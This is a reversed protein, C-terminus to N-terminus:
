IGLVGKYVKQRKHIEGISLGYQEIIQYIAQGYLRHFEKIEPSAPSNKIDKSYEWFTLWWQVRREFEKKEMDTQCWQTPLKTSQKAPDILRRALSRGKDDQLIGGVGSSLSGVHTWPALGNFLYKSQQAHQLDDPHGHYQPVCFIRGIPVKGRLQLSTNVFTDGNAIDGVITHELGAVVEGRSWGKASFNRDTGLLLAKSSFFFCPWFNPGQDGEGEYDLGWKVQAASLIEMACSSRKSGVIDYDGNELQKFCSDVMGPKFIFGDDEVLMVLEETVIDLTRDIAPGHDTQTNNYQLNIKPNQLCLARIYDVVAPEIPSNLYIYLKDVESGWVNDFFSLWYNLLFPDGPFPLIAARSSM